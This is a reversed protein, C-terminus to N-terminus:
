FKSFYDEAWWIKPKKKYNIVMFIYLIGIEQYEMFDINALKDNIRWSSFTNNYTGKEGAKLDYKCGSIIKRITQKNSIFNSLFRSFYKLQEKFDIRVLEHSILNNKPKNPNSDIILILKDNKKVKFPKQGECKWKM